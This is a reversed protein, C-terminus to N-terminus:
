NGPVLAQEELLPQDGGREMGALEAGEVVVLEEGDQALAAHSDGEFGEIGTVPLGNRDFDQLRFQRRVRLLHVPEQFFGAVHLAEPV